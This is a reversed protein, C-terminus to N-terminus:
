QGLKPRGGPFVGVLVVEDAAAAVDAAKELLPSRSPEKGIRPSPACSMAARTLIDAVSRNLRYAILFLLPYRAVSTEDKDRRLESLYTRNKILNFKPASRHWFAPNSM